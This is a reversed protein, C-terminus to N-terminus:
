YPPFEMVAYGFHILGIAGYLNALVSWGVLLWFGLAIGNWGHGPRWAAGMAALPLLFPQADLLFRYGFQTWGVNGHVLNPIMPLAAALALGGVDRARFAHRLAGAAYALAPSVLLVSMGVWSPKVFYPTDPVFHPGLLLLVYIHRPLYALSFLGYKYYAETAALRTYGVEWPVGWRLLDYGLELLALPLMGLAGLAVTRWLPEGRRANLILALGLAALGVPVRSLAAGGILAGVLVPSWGSVAGLLATTALLVAVAHAFYWAKGDSAHYWLTTGAIALVTTLLSLRISAGLRRLVLYTPAASAGGVIASALRQAEGDPFLFTFPLVVFAPIPVYVVCFRGDGCPLLEHLYPSEETLWWRGALFARALPAFFTWPTPHGWGSVVYLVSGALACAAAIM